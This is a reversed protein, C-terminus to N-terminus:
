YRFLYDWIRSLTLRLHNWSRINLVMPGLIRPRLHFAVYARRQLAKLQRRRIGPPSYPVKSYFLDKWAPLQIEKKQLLRDTAETGPLPLFNSFHARRLPLKKAFRITARIDAATEGPFGVIFFGCPELGAQVIMNVKEEIMELTLEKKMLELIRRSGSEIGVNFAYAGAKKMTKLTELDLQNLRIGNPFTFSVALKRDLIGQCFALVREKYFNFMDDIIHFERVGYQHYLTEMEQLVHPISRLRLKKGM